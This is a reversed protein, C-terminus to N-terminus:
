GSYSHIGQGSGLCRFWARSQPAALGPNCSQLHYKQQIQCLRRPQEDRIGAGFVSPFHNSQHYLYIEPTFPAFVAKENVAPEIHGYLNM